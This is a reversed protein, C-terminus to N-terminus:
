LLMIITIIAKVDDKSKRPDMEQFLMWGRTISYQGNMHKISKTNHFLHFSQSINTNTKKNKGTLSIIIFLYQKYCHGPNPWGM